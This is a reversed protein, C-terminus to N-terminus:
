PYAAKQAASRMCESGSRVFRVADVETTPENKLWENGWRKELLVLRRGDIFPGDGCVHGRVGSATANRLKLIVVFGKDHAM